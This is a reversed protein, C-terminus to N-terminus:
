GTEEKGEREGQIKHTTTNTKPSHMCNPSHMCIKNKHTHMIRDAARTRTVGLRGVQCPPISHNGPFTVLTEEESVYKMLYPTTLAALQYNTVEHQRSHM